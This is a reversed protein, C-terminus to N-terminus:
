FLQFPAPRLIQGITNNGENFAYDTCLDVGAAWIEEFVKRSPKRITCSLVEWKMQLNHKSCLYKWRNRPKKTTQKRFNGNRGLLSDKSKQCRCVCLSLAFVGDVKKKTLFAMGGVTFDYLLNAICDLLNISLFWSSGRCFAENVLFFIIVVLGSPLVKLTGWRKLQKMSKAVM